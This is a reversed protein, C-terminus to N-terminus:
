GCDAGGVGELEVISLMIATIMLITIVAAIIIITLVVSALFLLWCNADIRLCANRWVEVMNLMM